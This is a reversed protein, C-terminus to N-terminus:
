RELQRLWTRSQLGSSSHVSLYRSGADLAELVLWRILKNGTGTDKDSYTGPHLFYWL